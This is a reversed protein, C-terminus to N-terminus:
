KSKGFTIVIAGSKNPDLVNMKGKIFAGHGGVGMKMPFSYKGSGIVKSYNSTDGNSNLNSLAFGEMISINVQDVYMKGFYDKSQVFQDYGINNDMKTDVFGNNNSTSIKTYIDLITKTYNGIQSNLEKKIGNELVVGVSVKIDKGEKNDFNGYQFSIYGNKGEGQIDPDVEPDPPVPKPNEISGDGTGEILNVVLKCKENERLQSIDVGLSINHQGESLDLEYFDGNQKFDNSYSKLQLGGKTYIQLKRVKSLNKYMSTVNNPGLGQSIANIKPTSTNNIFLDIKTNNMNGIDYSDNNYLHEEYYDEEKKLSIATSIKRQNIDVSNGNHSYLFEIDGEKEDEVQPGESLITYNRPTVSFEYIKSKKEKYDVKVHYISKDTNDKTIELPANSSIPQNSILQIEESSNIRTITYTKKVTNKNVRYIISGINYEYESLTLNTDDLEKFSEIDSNELDKTLYKNVNNVGLQGNTTVQQSNISKNSGNIVRYGVFVVVSLISMAIIVELITFGKNSKRM